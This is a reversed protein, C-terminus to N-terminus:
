FEQIEEPPLHTQAGSAPVVRLCIRMQSMAGSACAFSPSVGEEMEMHLRFRSRSTRSSGSDGTQLSLKDNCEFAAWLGPM